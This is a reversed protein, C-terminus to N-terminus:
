WLVEALGRGAWIKIHDFDLRDLTGTFPTLSFINMFPAISKKEAM